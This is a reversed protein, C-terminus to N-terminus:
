WRFGLLNWYNLFWSFALAGLALLTYHMRGLVSWYRRQWAFGVCAVVSATLATAVLAIVLAAKMLATPFLALDGISVVFLIPFLLYLTSVAWGLWRAVGAM